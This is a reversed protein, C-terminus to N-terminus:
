LYVAEALARTLKQSLGEIIYPGHAELDRSM